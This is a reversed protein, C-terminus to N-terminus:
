TCTVNYHTHLDTTDISSTDNGHHLSPQTSIPADEAAEQESDKDEFVNEDGEADTLQSPRLRVVVRMGCTVGLSGDRWM